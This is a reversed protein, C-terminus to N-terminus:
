RSSPSGRWDRYMDLGRTRGRWVLPIRRLMAAARPRSGAVEALARGPGPLSSSGVLFAYGLFAARRWAPLYKMLAYTYNAASTIVDEGAVRSGLEPDRFSTTYHDVVAFPSFLLRHGARKVTLCTDLENALALGNSTHLLRGDHVALERRLAWNTGPLLEVDGYHSTELFHNGIVRGYWTVRGVERARGTVERGDIHDVFRGGAAGVRPDIFGRRIEALWGPRPVGDDDLYAIVGNSAAATGAALARVIGPEHVETTRRRGPDAACWEKLFAGTAADDSRYVVLVENASPEQSEVADLCRRLLEIRDHTPIVVSVQPLSPAPSSSPHASRGSGADLVSRFISRALFRGVTKLLMPDFGLQRATERWVQMNNRLTERRGPAHSWSEPRYRWLALPEPINRLDWRKALRIWLDWDEWRVDRFGGAERLASARIMVPQTMPNGGRRLTRRVAEPSVPTRYYAERGGFRRVWVGVAACGPNADLVEVQKEFLPPLVVDDGDPRVIYEGTAVEVGANEAGALGTHETRILRLRPDDFGRVIDGTGDTSGDDVVILELDAFTQALVASVAEAVFPAVNHVPM